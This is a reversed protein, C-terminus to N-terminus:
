EGVKEGREPQDTAEQKVETEEAVQGKWNDTKRVVKGRNELEGM